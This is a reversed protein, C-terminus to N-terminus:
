VRGPRQAKYALAFPGLKAANVAPSNQYIRFALYQSRKLFKIRKVFFIADVVSDWTPHTGDLGDWTSFPSPALRDWSYVTIPWDSTTTSGVTNLGIVTDLKLSDGGVLYHLMLMKWLKKLMGNGIDYKKSEIYLDPGPYAASTISNNPTGTWKGYTQDGDVYETAESAVEIQGGDIYLTKPTFVGDLAVIFFCNNDGSVVTHTMEVRTWENALCVTADGVFINGAPYNHAQLKIPVDTTPRVWISFTYTNGPVVPINFHAGDTPGTDTTVKGSYTGYKAYDVSQVLTTAGGWANWGFTDVEFSPNLLLNKDTYVAMDSIVTDRGDDNFLADVDCVRGGDETNVMVWTLAGQTSPIVVSGRIHLNNHVTVARRPMYIAITMIEPTESVNGKVVAVDPTVNEIHLLYHDEHLVAWMRHTRPDFDQVLDHYYKGLTDEVINVAEVGDWYYIGERGAWLVGSEYPVASMTSLTGDEAIKRVEFNDPNNGFLAFTEREKLVMLSNYAPIMAKIPTNAEKGSSVPIFDGDVTSLDVAMPDASDSFWLRNVFEGSQDATIGRNAYWQVEAYTANLFGVKNGTGLTSVGNDPASAILFHDDEVLAVAAGATLTLATNSTVSTVTGIYLNDSARYLRHGSTVGQDKWKTNAGTVSTNASAVSAVGKQVRPFWGMYPDFRAGTAAIAHLAPEELVLATDSTVSAVIGVFEAGGSTLLFMGPVVNATFGSPATVNKSGQTATVTAPNYQVKNAGRWQLLIEATPNVEDQTAIGIWSGGNLRPKSDFLPYPSTSWSGPLTYDTSSSYDSSLVSMTLVGATVHYIAIRVQGDPSLTWASGIIKGTFEKVGLAVELPGRRDTLSTRYIWADQLYRAQSDKIEHAPIALNMGDPFGDWTTIALKPRTPM